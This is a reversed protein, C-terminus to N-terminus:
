VDTAKVGGIVQVELDGAAEATLLLGNLYAADGDGASLTYTTTTAGAHDVRMLIHNGSRDSVSLEAATPTADINSVILHKLNVPRKTVINGCAWVEWKDALTHGTTAAFAVTVGDSIAQAAGTIAVGTTYSGGNKRWKFTDPTGEADIEFEFYLNVVGTATGAATIDDLGTGTFDVDSAKTAIGLVAIRGVNIPKTFAPNTIPM